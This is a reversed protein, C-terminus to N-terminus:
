TTAQSKGSWSVAFPMSSSKGSLWQSIEIACTTCSVHPTYFMNRYGAKCRFYLRALILLKSWPRWLMLSTVVTNKSFIKKGWLKLRRSKWHRLTYLLSSPNEQSQLSGWFLGNGSGSFLTCSKEKALTCLDVSGTLSTTNRQNARSVGRM